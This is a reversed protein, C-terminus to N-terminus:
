PSDDYRLGPSLAYTKTDLHQATRNVTCRLQPKSPQTADAPASLTTTSRGAYLLLTSDSYGLTIRFGQACRCEDLEAEVELPRLRNM